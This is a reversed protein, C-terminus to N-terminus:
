IVDAFSEEVQRFYLSGLLLLMLSLLTAFGVPGWPFSGGLVCSRYGAVLPIMPNCWALRQGWSGASSDAQDDAPSSGDDGSTKAEANPGPSLWEWHMYITPTIFMGLQLLFPIVYRFDRYKVNLASVFTGIGVGAMLIVLSVVPALLLLPTLPIQYALILIMLLVNSVAFDVITSGTSAIPIILRPFYVKTVLRESGVVSQAANSISSAFLNWALLGSFAFVPYPWGGSSIGPLKGVVAAFALMFLTPQLVAWAAGLLTQKYRVKIDRWALFGLLDRYQWIEHINLRPWATRAAIVWTPRPLESIEASSSAM